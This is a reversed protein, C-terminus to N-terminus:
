FGVRLNVGISRTGPFQGEEGNVGSIESPDFDRTKAYILWPNRSIVSFTANQVYKSVGGIKDVPIKYGISVERMKVFTLDYISQESINSSAFQHFYSLADVYHDVAKGEEDVGFVHVGGGDAVADRISNGKDNLVATRATLGSFSGFFDSLSFFKGGYSYDINVNVTFNKYINFSNQVGGTYKPLVSGYNVDAQPVFFGGADLVPQGNLRKIGTGFMQGWPKGVESVTYAAFSGSFAGSASVLRTIGPSISVVENRLLRGWTATIDWELNNMKLPKAFFQLDVGTKAIEGANTRTATYGSSPSVSINVPFNKNTRDWYTVNFGLRNKLFRTELGIEKESNTAGQLKPDVLINPESMIFNGNFLNPDPTYYTGLDYANLSNLLQGSSVRLKGFSLISKDQILDSFVFSAGISRTDISNGIPEASTYDRRYTGELFLYNRYGVDARVFLGRREYKNVVEISGDNRLSNKIPAVSNSLSYLGPVSLGGMTNANNTRSDTRLIDIGANANIAFEQIKKNYSALLEYNQRNSFSSATAYVAKSNNEYSNFSSQNASREMEVPYISYGNTNLEQKRYTAKIRFENNFKYTLAMDGFLRNRRDPNQILDFYTYHNFWYNGGFFKKPNAPDYSTPNAHNWSAYIGEPTRLGRLEKLKNIDLDRHFWQGFSGSSQNSYDDNNESQRDQQVYNISTSFILHPNLDISFNTNFTNRSLDSNPILGKIHLNTYSARINYADGAKSFSINNTTTVGTNYFDKINDEQPILSATKYSGASGGYWAYWPIYEQGVMRPGWSADDSYDHYYKGDLAKWEEPQGPQWTYKILDGAGGGAYSNQYNPTIYIKDFTIGSNIEIGIGKQGKKARKTTIVIAGNAGDPGFLAASAPGQLVTVDEVDDPNIDNASPMITGDVVYLAGSGIGLGNEGRLRVITERGLAAASQSRVQVGAVKGALANNINPTRVTNLQEASVNQVNSSQSRLTRKTQFASTVFIETLTGTKELSSNIFTQTGVVSEVQKFNAASIELVDNDKVRITYTGNADAQVGAAGGKVKVSAFPVPNGDKDIVKGSVVRDQASALIGWLMLMSFLSLIKRM